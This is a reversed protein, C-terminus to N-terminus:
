GPKRADMFGKYTERIGQKIYGEVEVKSVGAGIDGLSINFVQGGMGMSGMEAALGRSPRFPIIAEHYGPREGMMAITKQRIVGGIRFATGGPNLTGGGGGGSGPNTYSSNTGTSSGSSGNGFGAAITRLLSVKDIVAQIARQEALSKRDIDALQQSLANQRRLDARAQDEDERRQRLDRADEEAKRREEFALQEAKKTEEIRLKEAALQDAIDQILQQKAAEREIIQEQIDAKRQAAAEEIEALREDHRQRAIEREEEFQEQRERTEEDADEAMRRLDKEGQRQAAIFRIVDNGEEASLLEDQLDEIRRLREKNYDQQRKAEEKRYKELDDIEGRMFDNNIKARDKGLQVDIDALSLGLKAIAAEAQVLRDAGQKRISELREQGQEDIALMRDDHAKQAAERQLNWDQQERLDAVIRDETLQSVTQGEQRLLSARQEALQAITAESQVRQADLEAEAARLDNITFGGRQLEDVFRAVIAENNSIATRLEDARKVLADDASTIDALGGFLAKIGDATSKDFLKVDGLIGNIRDVEASIGNGAAAFAADITSLELRQKGLTENLEAVKKKAEETTGTFEFFEQNASAAADVARKSGEMSAELAVFGAGLAAVIALVPLAVPPLSALAATVKGVADTTLAGAGPIGVAPLARVERGLTALRPSLRRPGAGAINGTVGQIEDETAGVRQLEQELKKLSATWEDTGKKAKIVDRTLNDIYKQRAVKAFEKDLLTGVSATKKGAQEIKEAEKVVSQRLKGFSAEARKFSAPDDKIRLLIEAIKQTTETAM